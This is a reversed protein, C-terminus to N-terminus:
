GAERDERISGVVDELPIKAFASKNAEIREKLRKVKEERIAEEIAKRLVRPSKLGM